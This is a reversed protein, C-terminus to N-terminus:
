GIWLELQEFITLVSGRNVLNPLWLGSFNDWKNMQEYNKDHGEGYLLIKWQFSVLSSNKLFPVEKEFM